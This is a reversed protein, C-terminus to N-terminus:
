PVTGAAAASAMATEAELRRFIRVERRVFAVSVLFTLVDSMPASLYVSDLPSLSGFLVPLVRPCVLLFPIFFVLQRALSLFFAHWPKGISQFLMGSMMCFGIVPFALTFMRLARDGMPVLPSSADVFMRMVAGPAFRGVCWGAVMLGTVVWTAQRFFSLVRGYLRAGYNYGMLPAVGQGIGMATMFVIGMFSALIGMVALANDGGYRQLGRNLIVNLLSNCMNMAFPTIGLVLFPGVVRRWDLALCSRRIRIHAAPRLFYLFCWLFSCGQAIVTAWAAGAVGWGFYLIFLADLATNVLAGILMAVMSGVPHGDSRLFHSLGHGTTSLASGGLVVMAYTRAPPLLAESCGMLRLLPDLCWIAAVAAAAPFAFLLVFANGLIREALEKRGEGMKISFLTNSGIGVLTSFSVMVMMLPFSVTIAAIGLEGAGHGVFMRDVINYLSNVVMGIVCPLSFRLLLRFPRDTGMQDTSDRPMKNEGSKM